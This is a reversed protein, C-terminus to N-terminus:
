EEEEDDHRNKEDVILTKGYVKHTPMLILEGSGKKLTIFKIDVTEVKGQFMANPLDGCSIIDGRKFPKFMIVYASLFFHELLSRLSFGLTLSVVTFLSLLPKIDFGITGLVTL